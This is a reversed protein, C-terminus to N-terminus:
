RICWDARDIYGPKAITFRKDCFATLCVWVYDYELQDADKMTQEKDVCPIYIWKRKHRGIVFSIKCLRVFLQIMQLEYKVIFM